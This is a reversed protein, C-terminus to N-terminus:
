GLQEESQNQKGKGHRANNQVRIAFWTADVGCWYRIEMKPIKRVRKIM